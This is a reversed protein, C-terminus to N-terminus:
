AEWHESQASFRRGNVDEGERGLLWGWFPITVDPTPRDSIDEGPYALQHMETRMDGPDVIVASVDDEESALTRTVLELAAKSAGYGGWGPYGEVAADSTISVVLGGRERLDPLLEQVLALPAVANVEFVERFADLPYASMRPLPSPGLSSANNVLLDLGGLEGVLESLRRRHDPDTVDGPVPHVTAGDVDREIADATESLAEEGRATVIVEFGDGALFTALVSGLGRSGGTVLAVRDAGSRSGGVDTARGGGNM